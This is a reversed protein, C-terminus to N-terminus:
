NKNSWNISNHSFIEEKSLIIQVYTPDLDTKEELTNSDKMSENLFENEERIRKVPPRIEVNREESLSGTGDSYLEKKWIPVKAKLGDILFTVAELSERRHESSVAIIVSSETVPVLGLRILKSSMVGVIWSTNNVQAAGSLGGRSDEFQAPM